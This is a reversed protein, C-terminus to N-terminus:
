RFRGCAVSLPRLIATRQKRDPIPRRRAPGSRRRASALGPPRVARALCSGPRRVLMAARHPPGCDTSDAAQRTSAAASAAEKTARRPRKARPISASDATPSGANSALSNSIACAIPAPDPRVHAPVPFQREGRHDVRRHRRRKIARGTAARCHRAPPDILSRRPEAGGTQGFRLTFRQRGQDRSGARQFQRGQQLSKAGRLVLLETEREDRREAFRSAEGTEGCTM